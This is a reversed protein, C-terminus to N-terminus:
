RRRELNLDMRKLRQLDAGVKAAENRLRAVDADRAAVQAERAVVEAERAALDTLVAEWARAESEWESNPYETRLRKFALQAARYDRVGSRPDVQLRALNYLARAHVNDRAGESVVQVLLDRAAIPQGDRVLQDARATPGAPESRTEPRAGFRELVACGACLAGLTLAVVVRKM